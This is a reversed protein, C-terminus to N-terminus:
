HCPQHGRQWYKEISSRRKVTISFRVVHRDLYDEVADVPV